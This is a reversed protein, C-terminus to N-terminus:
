SRQLKAKPIVRVGFQNSYESSLRRFEAPNTEFLQQKEHASMEKFPKSAAQSQKGPFGDGRSGSSSVLAPREKTLKKVADEVSSVGGTDEYIWDEGELKMRARLFTEAIEQMGDAWSTNAMARSLVQDGRMRNITEEYNSIKSNRENLDRQLRDMRATLQENAKAQGSIDGLSELDQYDSIGLKNLADALQSKVKNLEENASTKSNSANKYRRDFDAIKSELNQIHMEIPQFEDGWKEKYSNLDM